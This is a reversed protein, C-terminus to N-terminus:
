EYLDTDAVIKKKSSISKNMCFIGNNLIMSIICVRLSQYNPNLRRFSQRLNLVM